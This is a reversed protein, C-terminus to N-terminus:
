VVLFDAFQYDEDASKRSVRQNFYFTRNDLPHWTTPMSVLQGLYPKATNIIERYPLQEPVNVGLRPNKIMWLLASVIGAAVQLTTANQGPELQRATHIDLVTGTWWNHTTNGLLLTGLEDVGAIIENQLIRLEPQLKYHRMSLEHLSAITADSPCYAYHVTPRYRVQNNEKLTLYESLTFAEGHRIVMGIIEGSPVWSHVKTHMGMQSLCIQNCEGYNYEFANNPLTKEHTGWGLEAPAVGEEHLGEISWTNVFENVKKPDNIIQSDRESIHIVKTQTLHGLLAFNEDAIATELQKNLEKNPTNSLLSTALDILGMKAFHSVLGPNAGHELVATAGKPNKWTKIAKRINMHRHYLTREIPPTLETDTYPDWVEVSTNLYLVDHANCWSLIEIADISYALDVILDGACVYRSLVDDLNDPTIKVLDYHVGRELMNTIKNRHDIPDIITIHSAPVHIHKILLPLTCRAVGGCGIILIKGKFTENM